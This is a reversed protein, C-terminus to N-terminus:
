PYKSLWVSAKMSCRAGNWCPLHQQLINHWSQQSWRQTTV